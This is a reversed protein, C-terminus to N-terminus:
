KTMLIEKEDKSLKFKISLGCKSLIQNARVCNNAIISKKKIGQKKFERNEWQKRFEEYYDFLDTVLM